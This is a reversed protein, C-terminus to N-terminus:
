WLQYIIGQKELDKLYINELIEALNIKVATFGWFSSNQLDNELYVPLYGVM